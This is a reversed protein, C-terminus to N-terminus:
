MENGSWQRIKVVATKRASHSMSILCFVLCVAWIFMKVIRKLFVISFILLTHHNIVM